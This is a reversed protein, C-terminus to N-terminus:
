SSHCSSLYSKECSVVYATLGRDFPIEAKWGLSRLKNSSAAYRFDHGPRDKVFSVLDKPKGLINLVKEVIELNEYENDPSINYIEGLKGHHLLYDIARCNDDVHMWNRRNEGNGYVPIPRNELANKIVTPLFKEGHQFSGYNNSSRSILIPLNYTKAYALVLLDSAAKSASYPNSPNLLANEDVFGEKISGYVEDTSIHFFLKIGFEKAVQLLVHTGVINTQIFVASEQISNDVHTEAAFHVVTDIAHLKFISSVLEKDIIDGHIFTYNKSKSIDKLYTLNSAYTLKDLNVVYYEPYYCAIYHIFHAGIFGAGGTVLLRM